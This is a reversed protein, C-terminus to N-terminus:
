RQLWAVVYATREDRWMLDVVDGVAPTTAPFVHPPCLYDLGDPIAAEARRIRVLYGKQPAPQAVVSTIVGRFFPQLQHAYTKGVLALIFEADKKTDPVPGLLSM